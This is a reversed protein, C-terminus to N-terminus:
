LLALDEECMASLHMAIRMWVDHPVARGMRRALLTVARVAHAKGRVSVAGARSWDACSADLVLAGRVRRVRVPTRVGVETAYSSLSVARTRAVYAWCPAVVLSWCVIARRALVYGRRVDAKTTRGREDTLELFVSAM